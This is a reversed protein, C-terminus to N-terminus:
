AGVAGAGAGAGILSVGVYLMTLSPRALCLFVGGSALFGAILILQKKGVRDPLWCAPLATLLVFICVFMVAMAAPGAARDGRLGAIHEQLSFLVFGSLNIVPVLFALRNVVWWTFSPPKQAEGGISIRVSLWVGLAVATVMGLLGATGVLARASGASLDSAHGMAAKVLAGAGLIIATFAAVMVVLRLIPKWSLKFPPEELPEERVLMTILMCVVLVVMLATLAGWLSGATVLGAIVFSVFIKPLPLELLDKVGSAGAIRRPYSTPSWGRSPLTPRILPLCPCSISLFLVWFGVMGTLRASIGILTLVVLQALTGVVILPRRRACRSTSRDSLLGMPAQGLLAALLAWLRIVGLYTGKGAEGVSRQALLPIVLSILEQNRTTPAFWYANIPIYDYWRMDRKMAAQSDLGSDVSM